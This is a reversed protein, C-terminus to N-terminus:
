ILCAWTGGGGGASGVHLALLTDMSAMTTLGTYVLARQWEDRSCTQLSRRRRSKHYKCAEVGRAKM